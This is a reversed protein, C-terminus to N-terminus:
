TTKLNKLYHYRNRNLENIKERNKQRYAKQYEKYREINQQNYKTKREVDCPKCTTSFRSKSFQNRPKFQGCKWCRLEDSYKKNTNIHNNYLTWDNKLFLAIFNAESKSPNSPNLELILPDAIQEYFKFQKGLMKIRQYYPTQNNEDTFNHKHLSQRKKLNISCGIYAIQNGYTHAYVGAGKQQTPTLDSFRKYKSLDIM